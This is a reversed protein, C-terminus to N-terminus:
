GQDPVFSVIAGDIKAIKMQAPRPPAAGGRISNWRPRDDFIKWVDAGDEIRLPERSELAQAGFFDSLVLRAIGLATESSILPKGSVAQADMSADWRSDRTASELEPQESPRKPPPRDPHLATCFIAEVVGDPSSATIAFELDDIYFVVGLGEGFRSKQIRQDKGFTEGEIDRYALRSHEFTLFLERKPSLAGLVRVDIAGNDLTAGRLVLDGHKMKATTAYTMELGLAEAIVHADPFDAAPTVRAMGAIMKRLDIMSCVIGRRWSRVRRYVAKQFM